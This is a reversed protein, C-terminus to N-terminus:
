DWPVVTLDAWLRHIPLHYAKIRQMQRDYLLMYSMLNHWEIERTYSYDIHLEGFLERDFANTHGCARFASKVVLNTLIKLKWIGFEDHFELILRKIDDPIM